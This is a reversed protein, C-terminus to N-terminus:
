SASTTQLYQAQITKILDTVTKVFEKARAYIAEATKEDYKHTTLNRDYLTAFWHDPDSIIGLKAAERLTNKPGYAEIGQDQLIAHMLKWALEFTFEFRQITADRNLETAPAQTAEQLKSAAKQLDNFLSLIRTM